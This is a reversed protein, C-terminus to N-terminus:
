LTLFHQDIDKFLAAIQQFAKLERNYRNTSMDKSLVVIQQCVYKLCAVVQQCIDTLLAVTQQCIDKLRTLVTPM